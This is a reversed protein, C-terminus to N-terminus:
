SLVEQVIKRITRILDNPNVPKELYGAAGLRMAEAVSAEQGLGSLIIVPIDNGLQEKVYTLVEIGTHHPMLLDTLVLDPTSESLLALAQKGDSASRVEFGEKQLRYTLMKLTLAEDEAIVISPSKYNMRVLDSGVIM